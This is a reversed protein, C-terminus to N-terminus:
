CCSCIKIVILISLLVNSVYAFLNGGASGTAFASTKPLIQGGEDADDANDAAAAATVNNVVETLMMMMMM